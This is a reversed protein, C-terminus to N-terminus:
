GDGIVGDLSESSFFPSVDNELGGREGDCLHFSLFM